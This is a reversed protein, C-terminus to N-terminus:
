FILEQIFYAKESSKKKKREHCKRKRERALARFEEKQIVTM